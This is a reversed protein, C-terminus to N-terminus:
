ITPWVIPLYHLGQSIKNSSESHWDSYTRDRSGTLNEISFFIWLPSASRKPEFEGSPLDKQWSPHSSCDSPHIPKLSLDISKALIKFFREEGFRVVWRIKMFRSGRIRLGRQSETKSKKQELDNSGTVAKWSGFSYM